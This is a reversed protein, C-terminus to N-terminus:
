KRTGSTIQKCGRVAESLVQIHCKAMNEFTYNRIIMKSKKGFESEKHEEIISNVANAIKMIDDVPVIYGNEGEVVLELGAICMNTTVIPLHFAMAENIVLGWVDFRTPFAFVDAAAYYSMLSEKSQFGVFHIRQYYHSDVLNLYEKPPNGGVIYIGVNENLMEVARILIDFGKRNIFQGVSLVIKDEKIGLEERLAKKGKKIYDDSHQLDSDYLSTFPYVYCEERKAGYHVLFDTVINGTSFWGSAASILHHKFTHKVKSEDKIFGGDVELFFPIRKVRLYEISLISTLSSYGGIIIADWIKNLYKLIGPCFFRDTNTRIGKLFVANFTQISEHVWAADRDTARDGEFLVTLDCLKGLENFFSVRYPSPINVVFLVKLM